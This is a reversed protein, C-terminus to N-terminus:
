RWVSVDADPYEKCAVLYREVWSIFGDYSGWGNTPNHKEFREPDAKMLALGDTLPDILQEAKTIGVEEPRWLCKYIGAEHAMSTLNHTINASYVEESEPVVCTVPERGPFRRVWEEASLEKMGGEERIFIAERGISKRGSRNLYVDLSM